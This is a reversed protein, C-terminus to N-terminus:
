LATPTVSAQEKIPEDRSVENEVKYYKYQERPEAAARALQMAEPLGQAVSRGLWLSFDPHDAGLFVALALEADALKADVAQRLYKLHQEPDKSAVDGLSGTAHLQALVHYAPAYGQLSANHVLRFGRKVNAEVGSGYMYSVGLLFRSAVVEYDGDPGQAAEQYSLFAKELDPEVGLGVSFVRGRCAASNESGQKWSRYAEDRAV